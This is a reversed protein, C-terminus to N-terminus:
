VHFVNSDKPAPVLDVSLHVPSSLLRRLPLQVLVDGALLSQDGRISVSQLVFPRGNPPQVRGQLEGEGLPSLSGSQFIERVPHCVTHSHVDQPHEKDAEFHALIHELLLDRSMRASCKPCTEVGKSPSEKCASSHVRAVHAALSDVSPFELSCDGCPLQNQAAMQLAVETTTRMADDDEEKLEDLRDHREMHM